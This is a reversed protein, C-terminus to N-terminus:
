EVICMTYGMVSWNVYERNSIHPNEHHSTIYSAFLHMTIFLKIYYVVCTLGANSELLIHTEIPTQLGDSNMLAPM